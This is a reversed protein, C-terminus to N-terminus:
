CHFEICFDSFENKSSEWRIQERVIHRGVPSKRIAELLGVLKDEAGEAVMQVDGNHENRVWGTVGCVLAAQEVNFRFGVGQVRGKYTVELRKSAAPCALSAPKRSKQAPSM